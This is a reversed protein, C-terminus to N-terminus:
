FPSGGFELKKPNVSPATATPAAPATPAPEPAPAIQIGKAQMEKLSKVAELLEELSETSGLLDTIDFNTSYEINKVGAARLQQVHLPKLPTEELDLSNLNKLAMLHKVAVAELPAGELGVDSLSPLKALHALGPGKVQTANLRLEGLGKMGVLHQLADDGLGTRQIDLTTLQTLKSLHRMGEDTIKTGDLDLFALTRAKGIHPLAQDTVPSTYLVLSDISPFRTAFNEFGDGTVKSNNLDISTLKPLRPLSRMGVENFNSEELDLTDLNELSALHRFAEQDAFTSHSLDLAELNTLRGLARLGRESLVSATADLSAVRRFQSIHEMMEDDVVLDDVDVSNVIGYRDSGLIRCAFLRWGQGEVSQFGVSGGAARIKGIARAQQQPASLMFAFFVSCLTMLLMAKRLDFQRWHRPDRHPPLPFVWDGDGAVQGEWIVAADEDAGNPGVSYILPQGSRARVSRSVTDVGAGSIREGEGRRMRLPEGSPSFPDTPPSEQIERFASALEVPYQGLRSQYNRMVFFARTAAVVTDRQDWVHMARRLRRLLDHTTDDYSDHLDGASPLGSTEAFADDYALRVPDETFLQPRQGPLTDATALLVTFAATAVPPLAQTNSVMAAENLIASRRDFREGVLEGFGSLARDLLDSNTRKGGAWQRLERLILIDAEAAAVAQELPAAMALDRSSRLLDLMMELSWDLRRASRLRGAKWLGVRLLWMAAALNARWQEPVEAAGSWDM